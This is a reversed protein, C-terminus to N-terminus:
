HDIGIDKLIRNTAHENKGNVPETYNEKVLQKYKKLNSDNVKNHPLRIEVRIPLELSGKM